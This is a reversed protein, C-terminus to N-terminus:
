LLLHLYSPDSLPTKLISTDPLQAPLITLFHDLTTLLQRARFYAPSSTPIQALRPQVFPKLANTEYPVTSSFVFDAPGRYPRRLNDNFLTAPDASPPAAALCRLDRLDRSSLPLLNAVNPGHLPECRVVCADGVPKDAYYLGKPRLQRPAPGVDAPAEGMVQLVAALRHAVVAVASGTPGTLVITKGKVDDALRHILLDFAADAAQLRARSAENLASAMDLGHRLSMRRQKLHCEAFLKSCAEDEDPPSQALACAEAPTCDDLQPRRQSTVVMFADELAELRFGFRRLSRASEVLPWPRPAAFVHVEEGVRVRARTVLCDHDGRANGLQPYAECAVRLADLRVDLDVLQRISSELRVAEISGSVQVLVTVDDAALVHLERGPLEISVALAAVFLLSRLLVDYGEYSTSLVPMVRRWSEDVQESRALIQGDVVAATIDGKADDYARRWAKGEDDEDEWRSLYDDLVRGVATGVPVEGPRRGPWLTLRHFTHGGNEPEERRRRRGRDVDPPPTYSRRRKIPPLPRSPRAHWRPNLRYRAGREGPIPQGNLTEYADRAQEDVEFKVFGYLAPRNARTDFPRYITVRGYTSRDFLDVIFDETWNPDLDGMWLTREPDEERRDAHRGGGADLDEDAAM